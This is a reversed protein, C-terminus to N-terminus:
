LVHLPSARSVPNYQQGRAEDLEAQWHIEDCLRDMHTHDEHSWPSSHSRVQRRWLRQRPLHPIRPPVRRRPDRQRVNADTKARRRRRSRV